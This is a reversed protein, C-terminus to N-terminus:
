VAAPGPSPQGGGAPVNTFLRPRLIDGFFASVALDAELARIAERTDPTRLDDAEFVRAAALGRKRFIEAGYKQRHAPHVVLGAIEESQERLWRTVQWGVWNNCLLLIRM